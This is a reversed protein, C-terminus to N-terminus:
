LVAVQVKLYPAEQIHLAVGRWLAPAHQLAKHVLLLVEPGPAARQGLCQGQGLIEPAQGGGRLPGGFPVM